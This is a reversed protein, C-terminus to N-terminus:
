FKGEMERMLRDVIKEVSMPKYGTEIAFPMDVRACVSM